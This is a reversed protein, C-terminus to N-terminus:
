PESSAFLRYEFFCLVGKTRILVSHTLWSLDQKSILNSEDLLCLLDENTNQEHNDQSGFLYVWNAQRDRLM